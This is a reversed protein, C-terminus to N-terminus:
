RRGMWERYAPPGIVIEDAIRLVDRREQDADAVNPGVVHLWRASDLRVRLSGLAYEAATGRVTVKTPNDFGAEFPYTGIEAVVTPADNGLTRITQTWVDGTGFASVILPSAPVRPPLWGFSVGAEVGAIDDDVVSEAIRRITETLDGGTNGVHLSVLLGDHRQWYAECSRPGSEGIYAPRGQVTTNPPRGLPEYRTTPPPSEIPWPSPYEVPPDVPRVELGVQPTRAVAELNGTQTADLIEPVAWRRSQRPHAGTSGERGVEILGEPLWTPRVFMRARPNGTGPSPEPPPTPLKGIPPPDRDPRLVLYAPVGVVLSGAAVTGVTLLTRRQRYRKIRRSLNSAVREPGPAQWALRELAARIEEPHTM